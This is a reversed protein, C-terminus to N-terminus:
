DLVILRPDMACRPSQRPSAEVRVLTLALAAIKPSLWSMALAMVSLSPRTSRRFKSEKDRRFAEVISTCM